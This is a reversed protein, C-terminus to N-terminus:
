FFFDLDPQTIESPYHSKKNVVKQSIQYPIQLTWTGTAYKCVTAVVVVNPWRPRSDVRADVKGGDM